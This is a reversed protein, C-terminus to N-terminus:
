AVTINYRRGLVRTMNKVELDTLWRGYAGTRTWEWAQGGGLDLSGGASSIVVLRRISYPALPNATFGYALKVGNNYMTVQGFQNIRIVTITFPLGPEINDEDRVPFSEQISFDPAVNYPVGHTPYNEPEFFYTGGWGEFSEGTDGNIHGHRWGGITLVGSVIGIGLKFDDGADYRRGKPPQAM